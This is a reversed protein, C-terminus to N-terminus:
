WGKILALTVDAQFNNSTTAVKCNYTGIHTSDMKEIELFSWLLNQGFKEQYIDTGSDSVIQIMEGDM